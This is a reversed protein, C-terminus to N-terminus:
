YKKEYGTLIFKIKVWLRSDNNIYGLNQIIKYEGYNKTSYIKSYDINIM